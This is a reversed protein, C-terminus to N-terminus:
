VVSKRDEMPCLAVVFAAGRVRVEPRDEDPWAIAAVEAGRLSETFIRRAAATPDGPIAAIEGATAAAARALAALISGATAHRRPPTADIRASLLM